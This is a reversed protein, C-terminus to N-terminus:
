KKVSIYEFHPSDNFGCSSWNGGWFIGFFSRTSYTYTCKCSKISSGSCTANICIGKTRCADACKKLNSESSFLDMAFGSSHKSEKTYTVVKSRDVVVDGSRGISYLCSQRDQSRLTESIPIDKCEPIKMMEVVFKEFADDLSSIKKDTPYSSNCDVSQQISYSNESIEPVNIPIITIKKFVTTNVLDPNIIALISGSFIAFILGVSANKLMNKAEKITNANGAAFAIKFGAIIFIIVTIVGVSGFIFQIFYKILNGAGTDFSVCDGQQLGTFPLGFNMEMTGAPCKRTEAPPVTGAAMCQYQIARTAGVDSVYGVSKCSYGSPCNGGCNSDDYLSGIPVGGVSDGGSVFGAPRCLGNVCNNSKCQNAAGCLNNDGRKYECIKNVSCYQGSSCDTDVGVRCALVNKSIFVFCISFLILLVKNIKKM